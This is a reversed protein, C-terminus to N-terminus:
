FGHAAGDGLHAASVQAMTRESPAVFSLQLPKEDPLRGAAEHRPYHRKESQPGYMDDDVSRANNYYNPQYPHQDRYQQQPPTQTKEHNKRYKNVAWYGAGGVIALKVLGM